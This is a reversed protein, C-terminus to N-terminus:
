IKDRETNVSHFREAVSEGCTLHELGRGRCSLSGGVEYEAETVSGGCKSDTGHGPTQGFSEARRSIMDFCFRFNSIIILVLDSVISYRCRSTEMSICARGGLIAM